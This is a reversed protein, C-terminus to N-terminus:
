ARSWGEEIGRSVLSDPAGVCIIRVDSLLVIVHQVALTPINLCRM